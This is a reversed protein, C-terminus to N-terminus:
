YSTRIRREVLPFRQPANGPCDTNYGYSRVVTSKIANKNVGATYLNKILYVNACILDKGTGFKIQFSKASPPPSPPDTEWTIQAVDMSPSPPIITIDNTGCADIYTETEAPLGDPTSTAFYRKYLDLYFACEMGADAASLARSAEEGTSSIALQKVSLDLIAISITLVVTIFLIAYMMMFGGSKRYTKEKKIPHQFGLM